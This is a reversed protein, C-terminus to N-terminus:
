RSTACSISRMGATGTTAISGARARRGPAAAPAAGRRAAHDRTLSGFWDYHLRGAKDALRGIGAETAVWVGREDDVALADIRHGLLGSEAGIPEVDADDADAGSKGAVKWRRLGHETGAWVYPGGVALATIPVSEAYRTVALSSTPRAAAPTAPAAGPTTGAAPAPVSARCACLAIAAWLFAGWGRPCFPTM